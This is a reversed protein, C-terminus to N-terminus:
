TVRKTSNSLWEVFGVRPIRIQRRVRISPIQGDACARHATSYSVGLVAAVESITLAPKDPIGEIVKTM